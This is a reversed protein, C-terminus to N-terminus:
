NFPKSESWSVCVLVLVHIWLGAIMAVVLRLDWAKRVREVYFSLSFFFFFFFLSPAPLKTKKRWKQQRRKNRTNLQDAQSWAM